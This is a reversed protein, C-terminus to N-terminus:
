RSSRRTPVAYLICLVAVAAALHKLAHGSVFGLASFVQGDFYELVKATLYCGFAALLLSSRLYRRRFLSLIVPMLVFPLFQVLAYPRLDGKGLSETWSWYLAAGLGVAVLSWLWLSHHRRAVRENLLLSLLAMFGLTMPLRDWLLTGNTPALHYYASGFGVCLAGLCLILYGARSEQHALVPYRLLGIIGAALFPLNSAVNWFNSVWGFRRSDAFLHYAPDQPIPGVLLLGFVAALSLLILIWVRMEHTLM